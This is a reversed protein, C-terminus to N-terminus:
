IHDGNPNVAKIGYKSEVLMECFCVGCLGAGDEDGKRLLLEKAEEKNVSAIYLIDTSWNCGGCKGDLAEEIEETLKGTKRLEDAVEEQSFSFVHVIEENADESNPEKKKNGM